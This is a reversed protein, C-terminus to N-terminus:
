QVDVEGFAQPEGARSLGDGSARVVVFLANSGKDFLALGCELTSLL